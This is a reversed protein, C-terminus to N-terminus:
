GKFFKYCKIFSEEIKNKNYLKLNKIADRESEVQTFVEFFVPKEYDKNCFDKIQSLFEEKTKACIYEFGCAEVWGKASGKYHNGASILEATKDGFFHELSDNLRFEMGQNNNVLLIRLNNGIHKNGIINMDYFFALDGVLGFCKRNKNALSQGVLTSVGGDIGFGGVNCNFDISEDLDFFNMNRLSNLITVHLASKEPINKSLYQAVLTTSLPLDPFKLNSVQNNVYTHYDSHAESKNNLRTFFDIESCYFLKSIPKNNRCQMKGEDSIRWVESNKSIINVNYEGSVDGIDIILEPKHRFLRLMAFAQSLLIKNKGHYNSTHDCFVPIKWSEAFDSIADEEKKTFKHHSGIFIATRKREIINKTEDFNNKYFDYKWVNPLTEITNTYDQNAPCIIHVPKNLYKAESVAANLYMICNNVDDISNIMPLEVSLYKVDNQSVSRDIYQPSLGFKNTNTDYFTIAIVPIRRYYCETMASLYNRSATAGTCTIVVPNNKEHWIGTAVYAASREDVVSICKFDNDEQVLSNFRANQTGPSAVINFIEYKKLIAILYHLTSYKFNGM